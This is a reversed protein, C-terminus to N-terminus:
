PQQERRFKHPLLKQQQLAGIMDDYYPKSYFSAIRRTWRFPENGRKSLYEAYTENYQEMIPWQDAEYTEEHGFTELPLRPKLGPDDAPHGVCLGSIPFVYEPLRLEEVVDLVHRRIGGIPVTGLGLSDAAAVATGLAIGVDTAGVLIPDIDDDLAGLPLQEREGALRLRHFDICFVLFVPAQEIHSQNGCLAALRARRAPDKVTIISVQQGNIWNPAGQAARLILELAADDVPKDTYSRVSRHSLLSQIVPNM